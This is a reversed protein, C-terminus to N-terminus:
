VLIAPSFKAQLGHEHEGDLHELANLEDMLTAEQMTIDFRVVEKDADAVV